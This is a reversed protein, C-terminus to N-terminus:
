VSRGRSGMGVDGVEAHIKMMEWRKKLFRGCDRAEGQLGGEVLHVVKRGKRHENGVVPEAGGLDLPCPAFKLACGLLVAESRCLM